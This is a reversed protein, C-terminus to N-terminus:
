IVQKKSNKVTYLAWLVSDLLKEESVLEDQWSFNGREAKDRLNKRIYKLCDKIQTDELLNKSDEQLKKYITIRNAIKEESTTGDQPPLGLSSAIYSDYIPLTDNLTQLLKTGFSLFIRHAGRYGPIAYLKRLIQELDTEGLSLLEFYYNKQDKTLGGAGNIAYFWCFRRKLTDDFNKRSVNEKIFFYWRFHQWDRASLIEIIKERYRNLDSLIKQINM